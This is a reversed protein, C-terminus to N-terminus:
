CGEQPSKGPGWGKRAKSPLHGPWRLEQMELPPKPDTQTPLMRVTLLPSTHPQNQEHRGKREDRGQKTIQLQSALLSAKVCLLRAGAGGAEERWEEEERCKM